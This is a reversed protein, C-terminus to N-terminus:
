PPPPVGHRARLAESGTALVAVTWAAAVFWPWLPHVGLFVASTLTAVAILVFGIAIMWARFRRGHRLRRGALLPPVSAVLV